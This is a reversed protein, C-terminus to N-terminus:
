KEWVQKLSKYKQDSGYHNFFADLTSPVAYDGSKLECIEENWEKDGGTAAGFPNKYEESNEGNEGIGGKGQLFLENIDQGWRNLWPNKQDDAPISRGRYDVAAKQFGGLVYPLSLKEEQPLVRFAIRGIIESSNADDLMLYIWQIDDNENKVTNGDADTFDLKGPIKDIAAGESYEKLGDNKGDGSANSYSFVSSFDWPIQVDDKDYDKYGLTQYAMASIAIRNVAAQALSRAESRHSNNMAVRQALISTSVFALGMVMLLSLMGLAFLLAVGQERSRTSRFRIKMM